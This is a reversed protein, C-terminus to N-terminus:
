DKVKIFESSMVDITKLLEKHGHSEIFFQVSMSDQIHFCNIMEKILGMVKEQTESESAGNISLIIVGEDV